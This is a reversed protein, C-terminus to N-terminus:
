YVSPGMLPHKKKLAMAVDFTSHGRKVGHVKLKDAHDDKIPERSLMHPMRELKPHDDFLADHGEDPFQIAAVVVGDEEHEDCRVFLHKNDELCKLRGNSARETDNIVFYQKM